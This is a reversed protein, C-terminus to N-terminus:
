LPSSYDGFHQVAFQCISNILTVSIQYTPDTFITIYKEGNQFIAYDDCACTEPHCKCPNPGLTYKM